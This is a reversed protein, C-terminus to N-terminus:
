ARVLHEVQLRRSWRGTQRDCALILLAAYTSIVQEVTTEHANALQM